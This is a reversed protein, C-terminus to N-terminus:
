DEHRCVPPQRNHESLAFTSMASISGAKAQRTGYDLPMSQRSRPMNGFIGQDSFVLDIATTNDAVLGVPADHWRWSPLSPLLSRRKITITLVATFTNPYKATAIESESIIRCKAGAPYTSM